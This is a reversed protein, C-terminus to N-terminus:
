ARSPASGARGIIDLVTTRQDALLATVDNAAAKVHDPDAHEPGLLATAAAALVQAPDDTQPRSRPDAAITLFGTLQQAM